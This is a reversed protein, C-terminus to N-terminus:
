SMLNPVTYKYDVHGGEWGDVLLEVQELFAGGFDDADAVEALAERVREFGAAREADFGSEIGGSGIEVEAVGHEHALQAVELLEAVLDDEEDAIRGSEYAVGGAAVDGALGECALLDVGVGFGVLSLDEFDEVGTFSFDAVVGLPEVLKTVDADDAQRCFHRERLHEVALLKEGSEFRLLIDAEM